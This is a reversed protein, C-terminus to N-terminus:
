VMYLTFYICVCVPHSFATSSVATLEKCRASLRTDHLLLSPLSLRQSHAWPMASEEFSTYTVLRHVVCFPIM